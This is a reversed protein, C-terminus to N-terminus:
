ASRRRLKLVHVPEGAARRRVEAPPYREDISIRGGEPPDGDPGWSVEILTWRYVMAKSPKQHSEPPGGGSSRIRCQSEPPGGGSGYLAVPETAPMQRFEGEEVSRGDVRRRIVAPVGLM